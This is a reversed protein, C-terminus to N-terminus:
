SSENQTRVLAEQSPRGLAHLGLATQCAQERRVEM